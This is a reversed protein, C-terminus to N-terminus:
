AAKKAKRAKRYKRIKSKAVDKHKACVMGFIPAAPNKCGPVPCLQRPSKKRKKAVLAVTTAAKPPRGRRKPTAGFADMVAARARETADAHLLAHLRGTFEEILAKISMPRYYPANQSIWFQIKEPGVVTELPQRTTARQDSAGGGRHYYPSFSYNESPALTQAGCGERVGRRCGRLLGLSTRGSQCQSAALLRSAGHLNDPSCLFSAREIALPPKRPPTRRRYFPLRALPRQERLSATCPRYEHTSDHPRTGTGPRTRM